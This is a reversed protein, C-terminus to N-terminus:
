KKFVPREREIGNPVLIDYGGKREHKLYAWVKSGAGPIALQGLSGKFDKPRDKAKWCRAYLLEGAKLGEGKDIGDVLIEIVYLTDKQGDAQERETTYVQEVRGRVVHTADAKLREPERREGNGHAITSLGALMALTALVRKRSRM